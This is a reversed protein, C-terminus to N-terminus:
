TTKNRWLYLPKSTRYERLYSIKGNKFKAVSIGEIIKNKEKPSSFDFIWEFVATNKEFIFSKVSWKNISYGEEFWTNMWKKVNTIGRYIPGHSEVIECDKHLHDAVKSSDKKTWGEIYIIITKKAESSDM